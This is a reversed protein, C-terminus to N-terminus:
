HAQRLDSGACVPPRLHAQAGQHHLGRPQPQGAPGRGGGSPRSLAPNEGAPGAPDRRQYLGPSGPGPVLQHAQTRGGSLFHPLPRAPPAAGARGTSLQPQAASLSAFIGRWHEMPAAPKGRDSGDEATPRAAPVAHRCAPRRVPPDAAACPRGPKGTVSKRGM